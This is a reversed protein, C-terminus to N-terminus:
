VAGAVNKVLVDGCVASWNLLARLSHFGSFGACCAQLDVVPCIASQEWFSCLAGQQPPGAFRVSPLEVMNGVTLLTYGPGRSLFLILRLFDSVRWALAVSLQYLRGNDASILLKM